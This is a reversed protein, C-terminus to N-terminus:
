PAAVCASCGPFVSRERLFPRCPCRFYRGRACPIGVESAFFLSGLLLTIGVELVRSYRGRACSRPFIGVGPALFVSRERLFADLFAQLDVSKAGLKRKGQQKNTHLTRNYSFSPPYPIALCAESSTRTSATCRASNTGVSLFM